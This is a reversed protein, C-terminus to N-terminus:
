QQALRRKNDEYLRQGLFQLALAEKDQGNFFDYEMVAMVKLVSPLPVMAMSADKVINEDIKQVYFDAPKLIASNERVKFLDIMLEVAKLKEDGSLANWTQASKTLQDMKTQFSADSMLDKKVDPKKAAVCTVAFGATMFVVAILFAVGKKMM